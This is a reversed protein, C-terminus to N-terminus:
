MAPRPLIHLSQGKWVIPLNTIIGSLTKPRSQRDIKREAHAARPSNEALVATIADKWVNQNPKHARRALHVAVLSM